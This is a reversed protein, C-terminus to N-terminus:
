GGELLDQQCERENSENDLLYEELEQRKSKWKM